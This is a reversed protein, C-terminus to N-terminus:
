RLDINDNTQIRSKYLQRFKIFSIIRWPLIYGLAVTMFLSAKTEPDLWKLYDRLLFRIILVILFTIIFSKNRVAYIHQDSRIEYNTTWILPISLLFGFIVACILEWGSAHAKPNLIIPICPLLLFLIPLLIRIGNGKIPRYMARTRRWLVLAAVIIVISYFASTDM